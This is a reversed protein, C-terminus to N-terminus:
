RSLEVSNLTLTRNSYYELSHKRNLEVFTQKELPLTLNEPLRWEFIKYYKLQSPVYESNKFRCFILSTDMLYVSHPTMETCHTCLCSPRLCITLYTLARLPKTRQQPGIVQTVIHLKYPTKWTINSSQNHTRNSLIEIM